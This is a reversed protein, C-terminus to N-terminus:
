EKDHTREDPFHYLDTRIIRDAAIRNGGTSVDLLNENQGMVCVEMTFDGIVSYPVILEYVEIENRLDIVLGGDSAAHLLVRFHQGLFYVVIGDLVGIRSQPFFVLHDVRRYRQHVDDASNKFVVEKLKASIVTGREPLTDQLVVLILENRLVLGAVLVVRM